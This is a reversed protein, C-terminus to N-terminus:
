DAPTTSNRGADAMVKAIPTLKQGAPRDGTVNAFHRERGLMPLIRRLQALWSRNSTDHLM